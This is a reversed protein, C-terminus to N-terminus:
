GVPQRTVQRIVQVKIGYKDMWRRVSMGTVGLSKGIQEPTEHELRRRLISELAEDHELEILRVLPSKEM